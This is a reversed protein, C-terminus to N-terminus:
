ILAQPGCLKLDVQMLSSTHGWIVEDKRISSLVVKRQSILFLRKAAVCTLDRTPEKLSTTASNKKPCHPPVGNVWVGYTSVGDPTPNLTQWRGTSHGQAPSKLLSFRPNLCPSCTPTPRACLAHVSPTGEREGATAVGTPWITCQSM